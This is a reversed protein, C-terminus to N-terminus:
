MKTCKFFVGDQLYVIYGDQILIEDFASNPNTSSTIDIVNIIDGKLGTGNLDKMNFGKAFATSKLSSELYSPKDITIGTANNKYSDKGLVLTKGVPAENNTSIATKGIVKSIKWTGFYKSVNSNTDSENDKNASSSNDKSPANTKDKNSSNETKSPAKTETDKKTTNTDNSNDKKAEDTSDTTKDDKKAETQTQDSTDGSSTDPTVTETSETNSNSDATKNQDTGCSVFFLSSCLILGLILTRKM